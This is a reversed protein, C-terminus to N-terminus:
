AEAAVRGSWASAARPSIFESVKRARLAIADDADAGGEAQADLAFSLTERQRLAQEIVFGCGELVARARAIADHAVRGTGGTLTLVLHGQLRLRANLAAAAECLHRPADAIALDLVVLAHFRRQQPPAPSRRLTGRTTAAIARAPHGFMRELLFRHSPPADVVLVPADHTADGCPMLGETAWLPLPGAFEPAVERLLAERRAATLLALQAHSSLPLVARRGHERLARLYRRASEEISHTRRMYDRASRSLRRRQAGSRLLPLLVNEFDTDSIGSDVPVKACVDDPYEAFSGIDNVVLCAGAGLARILTGSTEGGSPYRLNVVIDSAAVYRYFDPEAVYGTIQVIDDLELNTILSRVDFDEPSDQGAIIYRVPPLTARHEHLFRLTVDIQKARTVFGLSVLLVTDDDVGLAQRALARAEPRGAELAPRAVHHRVLEVAVQPHQAVVKNAAYLSHVIVARARALLERTLPLEFFMSRTRWRHQEFQRALLRGTAGYELELVDGYGAFDQYRLTAQDVLHHLSVDHLVVIGPRRLLWPILYIHDPNNGVQYLHDAEAFEAERAVYDALRIIDCDRRPPPAPAHDDIVVTTPRAAALLPLIEVAYDAIGNEVPPLPTFVVLRDPM